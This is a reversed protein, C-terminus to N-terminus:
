RSASDRRVLDARKRQRLRLEVAEQHADLEAIRRGRELPLQQETAVAAVQEGLERGRERRLLQQSQLALHRLHVRGLRQEVVHLRHRAVRPLGRFELGSERRARHDRQQAGRLGPGQHVACAPTSGSSTCATSGDTTPWRSAGRSSDRTEAVGPSIPWSRAPATGTGTARPMRLESRSRRPPADFPARAGPDPAALARVAIRDFQLRLRM